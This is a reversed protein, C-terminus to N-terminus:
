MLWITIPRVNIECVYMARKGGLNVTYTAPGSYRMNWPSADWCWISISHETKRWCWYLYWKCMDGLSLCEDLLHQVPLPGLLWWLLALCGSVHPVQTHGASHRTLATQHHYGRVHAYSWAWSTNEGMKTTYVVAEWRYQWTALVACLIPVILDWFLLPCTPALCHAIADAAEVTWENGRYIYPMHSLFQYLTTRHCM